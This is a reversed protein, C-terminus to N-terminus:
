VVGCRYPGLELDLLHEMHPRQGAGRRAGLEAARTEGKGRDDGRTHDAGEANVGGGGREGGEEGGGGDVCARMSDDGDGDRVSSDDDAEDSEYVDFGGVLRHSILSRFPEYIRLQWLFVDERGAGTRGGVERLEPPVLVRGDSDRPFPNGETLIQEILQGTTISLADVTKGAVGPLQVLLPAGPALGRRAQAILRQVTAREYMLAAHHLEKTWGDLMQESAEARETRPFVASLARDLNVHSRMERPVWTDNASVAGRDGDTHADRLAPGPQLPLSQGLAKGPAASDTPWESESEGLGDDSQQMDVAEGRGEGVPTTAAGSDHEGSVHGADQLMAEVVSQREYAGGRLAHWARVPRLQAGEARLLPGPPSARTAAGLGTKDLPVAALLLLLASGGKPKIRWPILCPLM